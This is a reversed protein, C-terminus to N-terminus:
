YRQKNLLRIEVKKIKGPKIIIEEISYNKQMTTQRKNYKNPNDTTGRYVSM